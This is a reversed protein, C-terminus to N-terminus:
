KQRRLKHGGIIREHMRSKEGEMGYNGDAYLYTSSDGILIFIDEPRINGKLKVRNKEM